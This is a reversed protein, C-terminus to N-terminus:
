VAKSLWYAYIQQLTEAMSHQPTWGLERKAKEYSGRVEPVEAARMRAPDREVRVNLGSIKILLDLIEQIPIANGSALNYVGRGKEAALRYARVVDRVDLFDRKAELNGVQIVPDQKGQAIRALQYAFSSAVFRNDQGPGIHNFPRMVVSRVYGFQEYRPAVLEAMRKSLSYNNAPNIPTEETIPLDTPKIRGYVEASSILVVTTKLELLHCARFINNVGGVNVSIARIFNDEAEPVFAIGALHYVVEPRYTLIVKSCEEPSTIDVRQTKFPFVRDDSSYVTGLVEDGQAQLHRALYGGVFGCAGTILTRM